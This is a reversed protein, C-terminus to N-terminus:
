SFYIPHTPNPAFFPRIIGGSSRSVPFIEKWLQFAELSLRIAEHLLDLSHSRSYRRPRPCQSKVKVTSPFHRTDNRCWCGADRNHFLGCESGCAMTSDLSDPQPEGHNLPHRLCQSLRCNITATLQCRVLKAVEFASWTELKTRAPSIQFHVSISSEKLKIPMLARFLYRTTM